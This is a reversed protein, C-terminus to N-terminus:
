TVLSPFNGGDIEKFDKIQSHDSGWDSWQDEFDSGKDHVTTPHWTTSGLLKGKWVQGWRNANRQQIEADGGFAEWFEM